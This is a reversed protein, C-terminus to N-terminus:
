ADRDWLPATPDYSTTVELVQWDDSSSPEDTASPQTCGTTLLSLIALTAVSATTNM